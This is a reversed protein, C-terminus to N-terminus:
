ECQDGGSVSNPRTSAYHAFSRWFQDRREDLITKTYLNAVRFNREAQAERWQESVSQLLLGGLQGANGAAHLCDRDLLEPIGGATSGVAPCGRSMAEVLSRPLGEQLSPQLYVDVADLWELVADGAPLTGVFRVNSSVGHAAALKVWRAPDGGGLVHFQYDPLQRGVRGFAALATQIGKYTSSLSGVLGFVFPKGPVRVREIRRELVSQASASISVNSVGATTGKSPYRHQLFRQTVYLAFPARRLLRKQGLWAYPAFLRGALTGHNWFADWPCGVVEVAYPKNHKLSMSVALSGFLSTRAIVADVSQVLRRMSDVVQRRYKLMGPAHLINPLFVFSVNPGDSRNLQRQHDDALSSSRAVVILEDFHSLYRQWTAYPFQGPSYVEGNGTTVFKHTHAFLAKM